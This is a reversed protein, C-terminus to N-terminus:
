PEEPKVARECRSVQGSCNTAPWGKLGMCCMSSINYYKCPARTDDTKIGPESRNKTQKNQECVSCLTNKLACIGCPVLNPCDEWTIM